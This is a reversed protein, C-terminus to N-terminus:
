QTLSAKLAAVQCNADLIMAIPLIWVGFQIVEINVHTYAECPAFGEAYDREGEEYDGEDDGEVACDTDEVVGWEGDDCACGPTEPAGVYGDYRAGDQCYEPERNLVHVARVGHADHNARDPGREERQLVPYRFRLADIRRRHNTEKQEPSGRHRKQAHM